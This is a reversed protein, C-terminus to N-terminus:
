QSELWRDTKARIKNAFRETGYRSGPDPLAESLNRQREESQVVREMKDVAQEPSSYILEEKNGVIEVQGGSNPVFPLLGAAVMEAVVMGFHEYKKTHLGYRMSGLLSVLKDRSVSGHLTVFDLKEARKKVDAAYQTNNITGILHLHLKYGRQRLGEVIDIAVKTQKDLAIRGITVIAEEREGWPKGSFDQVTVPPYIVDPRVGHCGELVSAMWESNTIMEGKTPDFGAIARSIADYTRGFTKSDQEPSSRCRFLPHHIYQLAGSSITLENYASIVGDYEDTRNRVAKAYIAHRIRSLRQGEVLSEVLDGLLEINTGATHTGYRDDLMSLDPQQGTLLTIEHDSSLADIIHLCVAEAGGGREVDPHYVALNAM